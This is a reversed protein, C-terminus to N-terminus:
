FLIWGLVFVNNNDAADRGPVYNTSAGNFKQYATYRLVIKIRDAPLYNAEAVWGESDPSARSSGMVVDGTDYRLADETGSTVFYQIGGGWRRRVFFHADVRFTTLSGSERSTLGLPFSAAWRQKEHIWTAHTSFIRTGDILQYSADLAYDEFRDSGASRDSPDALAHARMGYTGVEFSHKGMEKQLALRWYPNTGTLEIETPEGAGVFRFAGRAATRYAGAEAYILDNWLAYATIGAVQSALTMDIVTAAPMQPATSGAHPFSWMPTSNYIDSVTPSNNLTLGYAVEREGVDFANGYRIDLMEMAWRREAGDYNYQVLAGSNQTIKGGYYAALTQLMPDRDWEFDEPMAGGANTNSTSTQSIQLAASVPIREQWPRADWKQSSM